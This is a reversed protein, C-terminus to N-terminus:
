GIRGHTYSNLRFSFSLEFLSYITCTSKLVKTYTCHFSQSKKHNEGGEIM